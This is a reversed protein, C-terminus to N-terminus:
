RDFEHCAPGNQMAIMTMAGCVIVRVRIAAMKDHKIRNSDLSNTPLPFAAHTTYFKVFISLCVVRRCGAVHM